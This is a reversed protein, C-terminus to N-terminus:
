LKGPDFRTGKARNKKSSAYFCYHRYHYVRARWDPDPVFDRGAWLADLTYVYRCCDPWDRLHRQDRYITRILIHYNRGAKYVMPATIIPNWHTYHYFLRRSNVTAFMAYVM